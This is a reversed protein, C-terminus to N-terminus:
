GVQDPLLAVEVGTRDTVGTRLTDRLEHRAGCGLHPKRIRELRDLRQRSRALHQALEGALEAIESQCRGSVVSARLPDRVPKALARSQGTLGAVIDTLDGATVCVM